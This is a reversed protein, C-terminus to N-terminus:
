VETRSTIDAKLQSRKQADHWINDPVQYFKECHVVDANFSEAIKHLEEFATPTIADDSDLFFVYKGRSLELGRNRPISGGGNSKKKLVSISLRGGFKPMYSEVVKVSDDTSCDDVVIVEFNTFTQALISDLCEGVYKEVNYLPVIVSVAPMQM